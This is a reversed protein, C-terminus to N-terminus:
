RGLRERLRRALRCRDEDGLHRGFAVTTGRSRLGLRCDRGGQRCACEV